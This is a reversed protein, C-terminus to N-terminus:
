LIIPKIIIKDDLYAYNNILKLRNTSFWSIVESYLKHEQALVKDALTVKNDNADINIIKQAIIAGSDLKNNVFHISAGHIKEKNDIARQHTNLGKFKPLLSPHINITKGLYKKIFKTTLIRMFGALILLSPALNDIFNILENDFEASSKHSSDIIHTAINAKKARQLGLANKNDSIVCQINISIKDSNDIIAQLNSGNGSILVICNLM